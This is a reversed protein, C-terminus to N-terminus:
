KPARVCAISSGDSDRYVYCLVDHKRDEVVSLGNNAIQETVPVFDRKSACGVLVLALFLYRM